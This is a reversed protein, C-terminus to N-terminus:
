YGILYRSRKSLLQKICLAIAICVLVMGVTVLPYWLWPRGIGIGLSIRLAEFGWLMFSHLFYIAFSTSALTNILKSNIHEFRHLWVMFFLSLVVKQIMMLDLGDYLMPPKQYNGLRGAMSQLTALAVAVLLLYIEKNALRKYIFDKKQSCIMGFLYVPMFYVVSQLIFINGSPRHLFVSVVFLLFTIMLQNRIRLKIFAVHLPSLLFILMVFPIYWYAVLFRGTIYYKLAPILYLSFWDSGQPQYFAFDPTQQTVLSTIPIISLLTYPLLVKKLKGLMFKKFQYRKYFIHHFLFGSIFVFLITGGAILNGFILKPLTDFNIGVIRFCHGAVIIVIAIARFHNLSNVFM